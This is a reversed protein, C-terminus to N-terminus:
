AACLYEGVQAKDGHSESYAELDIVSSKLHVVKKICQGQYRVTVQLSEFYQSRPLIEGGRMINGYHDPWRMRKILTWLTQDNLSCVNKLLNTFITIVPIVFGYSKWLSPIILMIDKLGKVKAIAFLVFKLNSSKAAILMHKFWTSLKKRKLMAGIESLLILKTLQTDKEQVNISLVGIKRTGNQLMKMVSKEIRLSIHEALEQMDANRANLMMDM